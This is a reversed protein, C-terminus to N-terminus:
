NRRRRLRSALGILGTGLLLMSAPEPVAQLALQSQMPGSFVLQGAQDTAKGTYLNMVLVRGSNTWTPNQTKFTTYQGLIADHISKAALAGASDTVLEYEQEEYWIFRQVDDGNWKLPDSRYTWYVWATADSIPDPNGGGYGGDKAASNLEVWYSTGYSIHEKIELCFSVWSSGNATATFPGGNGGYPSAPANTGTYDTIIVMGGTAIPDAGVPVAGVLALVVSVSLLIRKVHSREGATDKGRSRIDM